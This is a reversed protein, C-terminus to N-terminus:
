LVPRHHLAPQLPGQPLPPWPRIAPHAVQRADHDMAALTDAVAGLLTQRAISKSFSPPPPEGSITPLVAVAERELRRAPSRARQQPRPDYVHEQSAPVRRIKRTISKLSSPSALTKQTCCHHHQLKEDDFPSLSTLIFHSQSNRRQSREVHIMSPGVKYTMSAPMRELVVFFVNLPCACYVCLVCSACISRSM